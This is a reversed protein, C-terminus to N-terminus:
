KSRAASIDSVAKDLKSFFRSVDKNDQYHGGSSKFAKARLPISEFTRFYSPLKKGDLKVPILKGLEAGFKAEEIVWDSRASHSSWLFIVADVDKLIQELKDVIDPNEKLDPRSVYEFGYEIM